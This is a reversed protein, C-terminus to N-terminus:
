GLELLKTTGFPTSTVGSPVLGAAGIPKSMVGTPCLNGLPALLPFGPLPELHLFEPEKATQFTTSMAGMNAVATSSFFLYLDFVQGEEPKGAVASASLYMSSRGAYGYHGDSVLQWVTSM